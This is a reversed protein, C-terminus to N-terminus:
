GVEPRRQSVLLEAAPAVEPRKRAAPGEALQPAARAAEPRKRVVPGEALQPAARWPLPLGARRAPGFFVEILKFAGSGNFNRVPPPLAARKKLWRGAGSSAGYSQTRADGM